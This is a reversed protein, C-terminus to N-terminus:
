EDAREPPASTFRLWSQLRVTGWRLRDATEETFVLERREMDEAARYIEDATLTVDDTGLRRLLAHVIITLDGIARKPDGSM